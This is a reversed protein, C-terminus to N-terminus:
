NIVFTIPSVQEFIVKGKYKGNSLDSSGNVEYYWMGLEINSTHLLSLDSDDKAEFPGTVSNIKVTKGEVDIFSNENLSEYRDESILCSVKGSTVSCGSVSEVNIKGVASWVIVGVLLVIISALLLWLSPTTTKIYKELDEVSSVRDLSKQRFITSNGNNNNDAM